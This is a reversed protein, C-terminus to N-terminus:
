QYNTSNYAAVNNFNQKAVTGLGTYLVSNKKFGANWNIETTKKSTIKLEYCAVKSVLPWYTRVYMECM